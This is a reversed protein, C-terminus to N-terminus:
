PDTAVACSNLFEGTEVEEGHRRRSQSITASAPLRGTAFDGQCWYLCAFLTCQMPKKLSNFVSQAVTISMQFHLNQPISTKKKIHYVPRLLFCKYEVSAMTNWSMTHFHHWWPSVKHLCAKWGSQAKSVQGAATHKINNKVCTQSHQM